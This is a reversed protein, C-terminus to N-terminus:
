LRQEALRAEARRRVEPGLRNEKLLHRLADAARREKLAVMLDVLALQVQPRDQRPLAEAIRQGLAPDSGFLYLAEVASLRVDVNPDEMVRDMLAGVLDPDGGRTSTILAITQIRDAPSGRRLRALAAQRPNSSEPEGRLVYGAAFAGGVMLLAAAALPLAWGSLRHVNPAPQPLERALRERFRAGLGPDPPPVPTEGLAQWLTRLERCEACSELHEAFGKPLTPDRPDKLGDALHIQIDECRM